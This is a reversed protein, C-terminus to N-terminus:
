FRFEVTGTLTRPAGYFIAVNNELGLSSPCGTTAPVGFCYAATKVEEDTLNKGHLSFSWRDDPTTWSVSANALTYSGQDILKVPVEFQSSAGRYSGNGNLTLTGGFLTQTYTLGLFATEEPTNQIVRQDSIDVGNFIWEDISADLLSVAFQATLSDLLQVTGEVEIGMITSSAANTVTGVFGDNVGDGDTDVGLSGPIQMDQYDSYFLAVNTVARGGWWTSKMGLEFSDLTEPKFGKEVEPTVLNAGRPDFGGAKFGQSYNGYFSLDDSLKYSVNVRPSFDTFTRESEFDSSVALRAGTGGFFPSGYGLYNARFVDAKREDDTYRGGVSVSWADSIDYTVDTYLSWSKTDVVGGTYATVGVGGVLQGLVVDFDNKATADIYFAGAVANWRGGSYLVQLEQTFQENDYIVPADVDPVKLSDFDIVSETTDERDATISRVTWNDNVDWQITGTLGKAIVENNGDIGATARNRAAGAFTSRVNNLVPEGSRAGPFPRWGAVPASDDDTRDYAIRISLNELPDAEASLRYALVEKNYNDLKTTRNFGYGARELSAVAGGIRFMDGLPLSGAAVYDRQDYSGISMKLNLEPDEGLPRTVYKIAGGVANRGYLTGQPGRLVEIRAVDYIDLLSGQPRAIYVDDIYLAVGQEFGALPDQQGVGRIFATLTSNTARSAEFTVSPVAQAMEAIDSTGLKQLTDASFATVAIPVEQLSEERRRATVTVEEIGSASKGVTAPAADQALIPPVAFLTAFAAAAQASRVAFKSM